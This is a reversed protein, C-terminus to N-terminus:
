AALCMKRSAGAVAIRISLILASSVDTRFANSAPTWPYKSFFATSRSRPPATLATAVPLRTSSRPGIFRMGERAPSQGRLVGRGGLAFSDAREPENDTPPRVPRERARELSDAPAPRVADGPLSLRYCGNWKMPGANRVNWIEIPTRWAVCCRLVSAASRAATNMCPCTSNWYGLHLGLRFTVTRSDRVRDRVASFQMKKFPNYERVPPKLHVQWEWGLRWWRQCLM